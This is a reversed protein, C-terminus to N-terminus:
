GAVRLHRRVVLRDDREVRLRGGLQRAAAACEVVASFQPRGVRTMMRTTCIAGPGVGVEVITAGASILDRTGEAAPWLMLPQSVAFRRM